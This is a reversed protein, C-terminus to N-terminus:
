ADDEERADPEVHDVYLVDELTTTQECRDCWSGKDFWDALEWQQTEVNWEAFADAKVESSRCTTCRYIRKDSKPKPM